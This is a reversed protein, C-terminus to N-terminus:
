GDGNSLSLAPEAPSIKCDTPECASEAAGWFYIWLYDGCGTSKGLGGEVYSYLSCIHEVGSIISVMPLNM